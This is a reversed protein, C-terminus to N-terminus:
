PFIRLLSLPISMGYAHIAAIFFATVTSQQPLLRVGSRHSILNWWDCEVKM